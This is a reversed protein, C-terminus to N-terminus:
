IIVGGGLVEGEKSYFVASQGPTIAKQPQ